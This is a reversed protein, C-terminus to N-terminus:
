RFWSPTIMRKRSEPSATANLRHSHSRSPSPHRKKHGHSAPRPRRHAHGAGSTSRNHVAPPPSAIDAAFSSREASIQQSTSTWSLLTWAVAFSLGLAIAIAVKAGFGLPPRRRWCSLLGSSAHRGHPSRAVTMRRRRRPTLQHHSATPPLPQRPSVFSSPSPLRLLTYCLRVPLQSLISSCAPNNIYFTSIKKYL